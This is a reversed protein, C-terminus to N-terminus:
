CCPCALWCSWLGVCRRLGRWVRRGAEAGAPRQWPGGAGRRVEWLMMAIVLVSSGVSVPTRSDWPRKVSESCAAKAMDEALVRLKWELKLKTAYSKQV